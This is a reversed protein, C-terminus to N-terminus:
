MQVIISPLLLVTPSWLAAAYPLLRRHNEALYFLGTVILPIGVRWAAIAHVWTQVPMILVWGAGALVLATALTVERTKVLRVLAALTFLTAPLALWVGSEIIPRTSGTLLGYRIVMVYGVLPPLLSSNEYQTPVDGLWLYLAAVWAVLVAFPIGGIAFAQGWKGRGLAAHLAVGAALPIGLEKTLASLAFLAITLAPRNHLYAVIAALALAMCLLESLDMFLVVLCGIWVMYTLSYWPSAKRAALLYAVLGTGVAYAILNVGILTWALLAPSGLSLLRALLPYLIRMLRFSPSDLRPVSGAGDRAIYYYFLSDYGVRGDTGLRALRLPDWGFQVQLAVALAAAGVILALVGMRWAWRRAQASEETSLSRAQSRDSNNKAQSVPV